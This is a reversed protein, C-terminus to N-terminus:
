GFLYSYILEMMEDKNFIDFSDKEDDIPKKSIEEFLSKLNLIGASENAQNGSLPVCSNILKEKVENPTLNGYKNLLLAVSGSVMPTAM